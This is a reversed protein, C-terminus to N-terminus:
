CRIDTGKGILAYRSAGDGEVSAGAGSAQRRNTKSPFDPSSVLPDLWLRCVPLRPQHATLPGVAADVGVDTRKQLPERADYRRLRRGEAQCEGGRAMLGNRHSKHFCAFEFWACLFWTLPTM